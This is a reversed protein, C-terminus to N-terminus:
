LSRVYEALDKIERTNLHSTKGHKDGPNFKTMMEELTIARGDHLYPATRWVEILTPTLFRPTTDVEGRTGVDYVRQDTFIEGHHCQSCGSRASEFLHKGRQASATLRGNADRYPSVLPKLSAFYSTIAHVEGPQPEHFEIFRFGASAAIPMSAREGESM